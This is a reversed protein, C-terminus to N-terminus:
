GGRNAHIPPDDFVHLGQGIEDALADLRNNLLSTDDARARGVAVLEVAAAMKARIHDIVAAREAKAGAARLEAHTPRYRSTMVM